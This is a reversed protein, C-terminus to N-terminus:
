NESGAREEGSKVGSEGGYNEKEGWKEGLERRGDVESSKNGRRLSCTPNSRPGMHMQLLQATVHEEVADWKPTSGDVTYTSKKEGVRVGM